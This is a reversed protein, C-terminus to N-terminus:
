CSVGDDRRAFSPWIGALESKIDFGYTILDSTDAKRVSSFLGERGQIRRVPPLCGCYVSALLGDPAVAPPGEVSM